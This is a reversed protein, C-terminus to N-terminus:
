ANAEGGAPTAAPIDGVLTGIDEGHVLRV